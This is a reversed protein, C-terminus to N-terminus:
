SASCSWTASCYWSFLPTLFWASYTLMEWTFLFLDTCGVCRQLSVVVISEATYLCQLAEPSALHLKIQSDKRPKTNYRYSNWGKERLLVALSREQFWTLCTDGLRTTLQNDKGGSKPHLTGKEKVYVRSRECTCMCSQLPLVQWNM